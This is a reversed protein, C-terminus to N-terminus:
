KLFYVIIIIVIVILFIASCGSSVTDLLGDGKDRTFLGVILGLVLLGILFEM